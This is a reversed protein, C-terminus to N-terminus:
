AHCPILLPFSGPFMSSKLCNKNLFCTSANYLSDNLITRSSFDSSLWFCSFSQILYSNSDLFPSVSGSTILICKDLPLIDRFSIAAATLIAFHLCSTSSIEQLHNLHKRYNVICFSKHLYFITFNHFFSVDLELQSCTSCM